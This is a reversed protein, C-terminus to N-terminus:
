KVEREKSVAKNGHLFCLNDHMKNTRENMDKLEQEFKEICLNIRELSWDSYKNAM